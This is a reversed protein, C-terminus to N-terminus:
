SDYREDHERATLAELEAWLEEPISLEAYQVTQAVREPTSLGVVTAAVRPDRMSFQLAAAALPVRHHECARQM